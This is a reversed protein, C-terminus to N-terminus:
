TVRQYASGGDADRRVVTFGDSPGTAFAVSDRDWGEVRIYGLTNTITVAAAGTMSVPASRPQLNATQGGAVSPAIFCIATAISRRM